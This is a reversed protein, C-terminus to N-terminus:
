LDDVDAGVIEDFRFDLAQALLDQHQRAAIEDLQDFLARLILVNAARHIQHDIRLQPRHGAVNRCPRFDSSILSLPDLELHRNWEAVFSAFM